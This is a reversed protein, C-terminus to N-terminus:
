LNGVPVCPLDRRHSLGRPVLRTRLRKGTDSVLLGPCRSSSDEVTSTALATSTTRPRLGPMATSATVTDVLDVGSDRDFAALQGTHADVAVLIM